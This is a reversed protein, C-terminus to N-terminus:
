QDEMELPHVKNLVIVDTQSGMWYYDSSIHGLLPCLLRLIQPCRLCVLLWREM